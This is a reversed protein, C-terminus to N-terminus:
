WLLCRRTCRISCFMIENYANAFRFDFYSIIFSQAPTNYQQVVSLCSANHPREAVASSSTSVHHIDIDDDSEYVYIMVTFDFWLRRRRSSDAILTPQVSSHPVHKWVFPLKSTDRESEVQHRDRVVDDRCIAHCQRCQRVECHRKCVTRYEQSLSRNRNQRIPASGTYTSLKCVIVCFKIWRLM